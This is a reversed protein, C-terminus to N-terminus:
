SVLVWKEANARRNKMVPQALRTYHVLPSAPMKEAEFEQRIQRWLSHRPEVKCAQRALEALIFEVREQIALRALQRFDVAKRSILQAALRLIQPRDRNQPLLLGVVLEENTLEDFDVGDPLANTDERTVIRAGRMNALDVLWDELVKVSGSTRKWLRCLKMRLPSVHCTRGFRMALTTEMMEDLMSATACNGLAAVVRFWEVVGGNNETDAITPPLSSIPPQDKCTTLSGSLTAVM